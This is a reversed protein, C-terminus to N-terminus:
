SSLHFPFSYINSFFAYSLLWFFFVLLSSHFSPPPKHHLFLSLLSLSLTLSHSLPPSLTYFIYIICSLPLYVLFSPSLSLHLRPPPQTFSFFSLISLHALLPFHSCLSLASSFSPRFHHHLSSHSFLTTFFLLELALAFQRGLQHRSVDLRNSPQRFNGRWGVVMKRPRVIQFSSPLIAVSAVQRRHFCYFMVCFAFFPPPVLNNSVYWIATERIGMFSSILAKLLRM